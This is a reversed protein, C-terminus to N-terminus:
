RHESPPPSLNRLSLEGDLTRCRLGNESRLDNIVAIMVGFILATLFAYEMTVAASDNAIFKALLKKVRDYERHLFGGPSLNARSPEFRGTVRGM